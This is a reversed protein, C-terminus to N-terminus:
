GHRARSDGPAEDREQMGYDRLVQAVRLRYDAFVGGRGAEQAQRHSELSRWRKVADEDRWFSLSLLKGPTTLSQFREVSIFGDIAKLEDILRAAIRLYPDPNGEAPEVEFIVAIM